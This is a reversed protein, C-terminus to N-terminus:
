LVFSKNNRLFPMIFNIKEYTTSLIMYNKQILMYSIVIWSKKFEYLRGKVSEQFKELSHDFVHSQLSTLPKHM